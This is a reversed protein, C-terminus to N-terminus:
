VYIIASFLQSSCAMRIHFHIIYGVDILRQSFPKRGLDLKPCAVIVFRTATAKAVGAVNQSLHDVVQIYYEVFDFNQFGAYAIVATPQAIAM